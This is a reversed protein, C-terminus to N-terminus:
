NLIVRRRTVVHRKLVDENAPHSEIGHVGPLALSIHMQRTACDTHRVLEKTANKVLQRRIADEQLHELCM